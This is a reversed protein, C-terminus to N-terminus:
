AIKAELMTLADEITKGEGGWSDGSEPDVIRVRWREHEIQTITYIATGGSHTVGPSVIDCLAQLREARSLTPM